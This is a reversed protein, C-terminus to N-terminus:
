SPSQPKLKPRPILPPLTLTFPPSVLALRVNETHRDSSTIAFSMKKDTNFSVREIPPAMEPVSDSSSEEPEIGSEEM